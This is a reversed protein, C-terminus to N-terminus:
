LIVLTDKTNLSQQQPTDANAVKKVKKIKLRHKKQITSNPLHM